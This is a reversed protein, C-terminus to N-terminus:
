SCSFFYLFGVFRSLFYFFTLFMWQDQKPGALRPMYEMWVMNWERLPFDTSWGDGDILHMNVNKGFFHYWRFLIEECLISWAYLFCMASVSFAQPLAFISLLVLAVQFGKAESTETKKERKFRGTMTTAPTFGCRALLQTTMKLLRLWM